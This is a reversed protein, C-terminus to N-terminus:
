DTSTEMMALDAMASSEGNYKELLDLPNTGGQSNPTVEESELYNHKVQSDPTRRRRHHQVEYLMRRVELHRKLVARPTFYNHGAITDPTIHYRTCVM